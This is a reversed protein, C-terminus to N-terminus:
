PVTLSWNVPGDRTLGTLLSAKAPRHLMEVDIM